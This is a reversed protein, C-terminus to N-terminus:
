GYTERNQNDLQGEVTLKETSTLITLIIPDLQLQRRADASLGGQILNILTVGAAGSIFDIQKGVCGIM